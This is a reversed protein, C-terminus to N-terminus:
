YGKKRRELRLERRKLAMEWEAKQEYTEIVLQPVEVPKGHEDLNVMVFYAKNILHREGKLNEVYTDIRVEMSTKGTYTIYGILVLMNDVYAGEKFILNDIAATTVTASGTHRKAVIAAVEDIMKLLQGGFLRGSGNLDTPRLLRIQETLSYDVNHTM